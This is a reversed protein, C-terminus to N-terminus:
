RLPPRIVVRYVPYDHGCASSRRIEFVDGPRADYYRAVPDALLMKCMNRTSGLRYHEVVREAERPSLKRHPPVLVHRTVNFVLANRNFQEVHLDAFDKQIRNLAFPTINTRLVVLVHAIGRDRTDAAIVRLPKVGLKPHRPFHVMLREQGRKRVEFPRLQGRMKNVMMDAFEAEPMSFDDAVAYGRDKFMEWLTRVIAYTHAVTDRAVAVSASLPLPGGKGAKAGKKKGPGRVRKKKKTEKTDSSM